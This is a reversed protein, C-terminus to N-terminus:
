AAPIVLVAADAGSVPEPVDAGSERLLQLHEVLAERVLDEVESRTGGAAVVGPVDPCYASYGGVEDGEFVVVYGKM